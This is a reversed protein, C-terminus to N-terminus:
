RRLLVAAGLILATGTMTTLAVAEGLWALALLAAVVPELTALISATSADIHRIGAYFFLAALLTPGLGMLVLLGWADPYTALVTWPPAVLALVVAGVGYAFLITTVLDYRARIRKGLVTFIAYAFGSALGAMVGLGDVDGLARFAGTVLFAGALVMALPLLRAPRVPEWRLGWAIAIVFAPATYLLAAAVAVPLRDIAALYVWYFFGVGVVGYGIMLPLDARAVRPPGHRRARLAAFPLIGIFAFAARVSGVELPTAGHEFALRGFIGLSGWLTAAGVVLAAGLLPRSPRPEGTAVTRGAAEV